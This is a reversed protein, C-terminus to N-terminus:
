YGHLQRPGDTRGTSAPAVLAQAKLIHAGQPSAVVTNLSLRVIEPLDDSLRSLRLAVDALAGLDAEPAGAYGTLVPAARPSRILQHADTDTLPVVAYGRDGLLETALGGIGFSVLAGFSGDDQIGLVTDVGRPAMAQVVARGDEALGLGGWADALAHEDYLHLRVDNAHRLAVPWGLTVAASQAEWPGVVERSPVLHLGYAGLLREVEDTNLERGGATTALIHEVLQRAPTPDIDDFDVIRGPDRQRWAAHRVARALTRVAREPSPYTPIFGPPPMIEGAASLEDRLGETGLFTSLVTTGSGAAADRLARAYEVGTGALLPPVFVAVVADVDSAAVADTIQAGFEVSTANVGVDVSRVLDLGQEACAATVLVNLAASNGVVAVRNGTPLPQAALLLAVDFMEDLTRVRIVGAAEFLAAISAEPVDVSTGALGTVVRGLGSKVAVIPKTRATRRTLRAFKRPNGFSELYLLVVDTDPDASWFQLMDNGSVDARNGASVFTSLGVHRRVAEGLVAVGLAGSQSFFGTRGRPPVLPALSANLRVAAGNNAIGLCNPGVVRMGHLRAAHVLARQAALGAARDDTREGFGGSILVIAHVNKAACEDILGAVTDAPVAIVALDVDGPVETISAYAPLGEVQEASPHIPHVSGAFGGALINRLVANGLKSTDTSAGIVAVSSPTMLRQISAAEALQEREWKVAETAVTQGIDFVLYQAEERVAVTAEYGAESFVTRLRPDDSLVPASVQSVGRERAAATLHELLVSGIGRGQHLEDVVFAVEAEVPDSRRDFRGVAVINAGLWVVLAVRDINDVDTFRRLDQRSLEGGASFLRLYWSQEPLRAHLARLADADDASIPRISVTGGDAVVVDVAGPRLTGRLIQRTTAEDALDTM